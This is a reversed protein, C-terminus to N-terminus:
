FWKDRDMSLIIAETIPHKSVEFSISSFDVRTGTFRKAFKRSVEVNYRTIKEFFIFWGADKLLQACKLHEEAWQM